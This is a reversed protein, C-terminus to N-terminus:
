PRINASSAQQEEYQLLRGRIERALQDNGAAIARQLAAHAMAVARDPQGAAAYSGALSDLVAPNDPQFRQLREFHRIAENPNGRRM